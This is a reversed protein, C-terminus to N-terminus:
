WIREIREIGFAKRAEEMSSYCDDIRVVLLESFRDCYTCIRHRNLLKDLGDLGDVRLTLIAYGATEMLFLCDTVDYPEGDEERDVVWVLQGQAFRQAAVSGVPPLSSVERFAADCDGGARKIIELVDQRKILEEM